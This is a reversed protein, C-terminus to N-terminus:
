RPLALGVHHEERKGREGIESLNLMLLEFGFCEGCPYM